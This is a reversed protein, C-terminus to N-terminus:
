RRTAADRGGVDNPWERSARRWMGAISWTKRRKKRMGKAWRDGKWRRRKEMEKENKKEEKKGMEEKM